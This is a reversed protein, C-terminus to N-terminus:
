DDHYHLWSPQPANNGVCTPTILGTPFVLCSLALLIVLWRVNIVERM